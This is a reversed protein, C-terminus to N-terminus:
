SKDLDQIFYNILEAMGDQKDIIRLGARYGPSGDPFTFTAIHCLELDAVVAKGNPIIIRCGKLIAGPELNIDRHYLICGLGDQSIDCIHSEFSVFGGEDAICRLMIDAPIPFRPHERHHHRILLKPLGFQIAPQGEFIVEVPNTVEFVIQADQFSATFTVSQKELLKSNLMKIDCYAIAFSDIQTNVQLIHSAFVRNNGLEALIVCKDQVLEELLRCIEIHSRYLINGPKGPVAPISSTTM